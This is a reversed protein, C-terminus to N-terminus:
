AIIDRILRRADAVVAPGVPRRLVDAWAFLDAIRAVELWDRPLFGGAARYGDALGAGFAHDRGLPPRLLNGFDLAPSASLAFEWDLIAAVQWRGNADTRVLINPGNFDGHVLCPVDLWQDLRGGEREAFAIVSASLEAGLRASGGAEILCERLYAILGTRGMDIRQPVVLHDAFFGPKDFAYRHIRALIEGVSRGLARVDGPKGSRPVGDLRTADIWQVIAYPLGIQPDRECFYLFRPVPVTPAIREVVAVEKRASAPDRQYIRLLVPEALGTAVIKRNTNVLGGGVREVRRVRASPFVPQILRAIGSTDLEIEPRERTWGDKM